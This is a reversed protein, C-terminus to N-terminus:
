VKSEVFRALCEISQFNEETVEDSDIEIGFEDEIEAVVELLAASDLGVDEMLAAKPDLEAPEMPLELREIFLMRIKETLPEGEAM